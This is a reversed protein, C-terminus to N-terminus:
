AALFALREELQEATNTGAGGRAMLYGTMEALGEKGPPEVYAGARIYIAINILPLERDTAVYAVPGAKLEVRFAKPDPPEYDLAPFKLKEPRDPIAPTSAPVTTLAVLWLATALEITKM